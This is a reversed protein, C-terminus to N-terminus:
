FICFTTKSTYVKQQQHNQHQHLIIRINDMSSYQNLIHSKVEYQQLINKYM